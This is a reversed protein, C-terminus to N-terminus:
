RSKQSRGPNGQRNNSKGNSVGKKKKAEKLCGGIYKKAEGAPLEFVKDKILKGLEPHYTKPGPGPYYVKM